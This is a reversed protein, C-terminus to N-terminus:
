LAPQPGDFRPANCNVPDKRLFMIRIKFIIPQYGHGFFDFGTRIDKFPFAFLIPTELSPILIVSKSIRFGFGLQYHVQANLKDIFTDFQSPYSISRKYKESLTYNGNIGISNTLFSYRKLQKVHTARLSFQAMSIALTNDSAYNSLSSQTTIDGIHKAKGSFKRYGIGSELYHILRPNKFTYFYGLEIGYGIKGSGSVDFKYNLTDIQKSSNSSGIPLLYTLEPAIYFGSRKYQRDLPFLDKNLQGFSNICFGIFLSILITNRM